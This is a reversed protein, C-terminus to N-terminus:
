YFRSQKTEMYVAVAFFDKQRTGLSGTATSVTKKQTKGLSGAASSVRENRGQM